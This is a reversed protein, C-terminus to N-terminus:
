YRMVINLLCSILEWLHRIHQSPVSTPNFSGSSWTLLCRFVYSCATIHSRLSVAYHVVTQYIFPYVSVTTKHPSEGCFPLVQSKKTYFIFYRTIMCIDSQMDTHLHYSTLQQHHDCLRWGSVIIVTVASQTCFMPRLHVTAPNAITRSKSTKCSFHTCRCLAPRSVYFM